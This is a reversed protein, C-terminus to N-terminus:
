SELAESVTIAANNGLFDGTDPDAMEALLGVDNAAGDPLVEATGV